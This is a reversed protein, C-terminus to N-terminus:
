PSPQPGLKKKEIFRSGDMSIEIKTGERIAISVTSGGRVKFDGGGRDRVGAQFKIPIKQKEGTKTVVLM